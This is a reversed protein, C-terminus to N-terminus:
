HDSYLVLKITSFPTKNIMAAEHQWRTTTNQYHGKHTTWGYRQATCCGAATSESMVQLCSALLLLQQELGTYIHFTCECVFHESYDNMRQELSARFHDSKIWLRVASIQILQLLSVSCRSLCTFLTNFYDFRIWWCIPLRFPPWM